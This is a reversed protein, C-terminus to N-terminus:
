PKMYDQLLLMTHQSKGKFHMHVNWSKALISVEATYANKPPSILHSKKLRIGTM